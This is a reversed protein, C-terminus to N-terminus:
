SGYRMLCLQQLRKDRFLFEQRQGLRDAPDKGTEALLLVSSPRTEFEEDGLQANFFEPPEHQFFPRDQGFLRAPYGIEVCEVTSVVLGRASATDEPWGGVRGPKLSPELGIDIRLPM